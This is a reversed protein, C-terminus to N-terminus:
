SQPGTPRKHPNPSSPSRRKELKITMCVKHYLALYQTDAENLSDLWLLREAPPLKRLLYLPCEAPNCRDVPCCYALGVLGARLEDIPVHANVTM